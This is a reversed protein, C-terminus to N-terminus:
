LSKAVPTDLQLTMGVADFEVFGRLLQLEIQGRLGSRVGTYQADILEGNSDPLPRTMFARLVGSADQTLVSVEGVGNYRLQLGKMTVLDALRSGIINKSRWRPVFAADFYTLSAYDESHLLSGQIFVTRDPEGAPNFDSWDNDDDDWTGDDSDWTTSQVEDPFNVGITAVLSRKYWRQFAIDHVWTGDPTGLLYRRRKADYHGWYEDIRSYDLPLLEANIQESVNLSKQGDFIQVGVDSLYEVGGYVVRATSESVCGIGPEVPTITGPEVPDNTRTAIWLSKKCLIAMFDLSMPRLAVIGDDAAFDYILEEFGTGYGTFDEFGGVASSWIVGMPLFNGAIVANAVWLRNNWAALTRGVPVTTARINADNPERSYVLERGNTFIYSGAYNTGVWHGKDLIGENTWVTAGARKVGVYPAAFLLLESSADLNSHVLAANPSYTLIEVESTGPARVLRDGRTVEFDLMLPSANDPLQDSSIDTRYGGAFSVVQVSTEGPMMSNMQPSGPRLQMMQPPNQRLGERGNRRLTNAVSEDERSM